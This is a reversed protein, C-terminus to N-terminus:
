LLKRSKIDYYLPKKTDHNYCAIEDIRCKVDKLSSLPVIYLKDPNAPEGGVGIAVFVDLDNEKAYKEYRERQADYSWTILNDKVSSRWKCEVAFPYTGSGLRLEALLDPEMSGEDLRGDVFRDSTRRKLVTNKDFLRVIFDEFAKGKEVPTEEVDEPFESAITVETEINESSSAQGHSGKTLVIIGAVLLAAGIIILFYGMKKM